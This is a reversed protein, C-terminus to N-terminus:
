LPCLKVNDYVFLGVELIGPIEEIEKVKEMDKLKVDLIFFGNETVRPYGKKDTRLEYTLGLEEIRKEVLRLALPHVEVPLPVSLRDVLREKPLFVFIRNAVEWLLRERFLAGGGGKIIYKGQVVQDAGDIVAEVSNLYTFPLIKFGLKLAVNEIQTSSPVGKLPRKAREKLMKLVKAVTSGSGLGLVEYHLIEKLIKEMARM